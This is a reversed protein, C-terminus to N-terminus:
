CGGVVFAETLAAITRYFHAGLGNKGKEKIWHLM